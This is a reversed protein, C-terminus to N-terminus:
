SHHPPTVTEARDPWSSDAWTQPSDQSGDPPILDVAQHQTTDNVIILQRPLLGQQPGPLTMVNEVRPGPDPPESVIDGEPPRLQPPLPSDVFPPQPVSTSLQSPRPPITGKLFSIPPALRTPGTLISVSDPSQILGVAPNGQPPHDISGSTRSHSTLKPSKRPLKKISQRSYDQKTRRTALRRARPSLQGVPSSSLTPLPESLAQTSTDLSAPEQSVPVPEEQTRPVQEQHEADPISAPVSVGSDNDAQIALAEYPNSVAQLDQPQANPQAPRRLPITQWKNGQQPATPGRSLNGGDRMVKSRKTGVSTPLTLVTAGSLSRQTLPCGPAGSRHNRQPCDCRKNCTRAPHFKSGCITCGRAPNDCNAFSHATTHCLPCHQLATTVTCTMQTEDPLTHRAVAAAEPPGENWLKRQYEELFDSTKVSNTGTYGKSTRSKHVEKLRNELSPLVPWLPIIEATLNVKWLEKNLTRPPLKPQGLRITVQASETKGNRSQPSWRLLQDEPHLFSREFIKQPADANVFSVTAAIVSIQSGADPALDFSQDDKGDLVFALSTLLETLHAAVALCSFNVRHSFSIEPCHAEMANWGHQRLKVNPFFIKGNIFRHDKASVLAVFRDSAEKLAIIAQRTAELSISFADLPADSEDNLAALLDMSRSSATIADKYTRVFEDKAEELLPMLTQIFARQMEEKSLDQPNVITFKLSNTSVPLQTLHDMFEEQTLLAQLSALQAEYKFKERRSFAYTLELKLYDLDDRTLTVQPSQLRDAWSQTTINQNPNKHKTTNKPIPSNKPNQTNEPNEPVNKETKDNETIEIESDNDAPDDSIESLSTNHPLAELDSGMSVDDLTIERYDADDSLRSPDMSCMDADSEPIQHNQEATAGSPDGRPSSTSSARLAEESVQPTDNPPDGPPRDVDDAANAVSSTRRARISNM